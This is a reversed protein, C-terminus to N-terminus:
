PIIYSTLLCIYTTARHMGIICLRGVQNPPADCWDSSLVHGLDLEVRGLTKRARRRPRRVWEKSIRNKREGSYLVLIFSYFQPTTQSLQKEHQGRWTCSSTHRLRVLVSLSFRSSRGVRCQEVVEKGLRKEFTYRTKRDVEDQKDKSKERRIPITKSRSKERTMEGIERLDGEWVDGDVGRTGQPSQHGGRHTPRKLSPYWLM